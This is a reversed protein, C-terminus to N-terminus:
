SSPLDASPALAGVFVRRTPGTMRISGGATSPVRVQLAGGPLRVTVDADTAVRGARALVAAVGCAGTGCAETLGVGREWVIVDASGDARVTVFEVNTREPFRRDHELIPGLRQALATDPAGQELELVLHPNGMSVSSARLVVGEVILREATWEPIQEPALFRAPGMDVEVRATELAGHEADGSVGRAGSGTATAPLVTARRPGADTDVVHERGVPVLGQHVLFLSVCRLGNGCMQPVSGDANTIHMRAVAGPTIPALVTIVGDAGVGRHRDCLWRRLAVATAPMSREREDVVVFDNGLGEYKAFRM